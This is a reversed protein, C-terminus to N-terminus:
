QPKAHRSASLPDRPPFVKFPRWWGQEPQHSILALLDGEPSSACARLILHDGGDQSQGLAPDTTAELPLSLPRGSLVDQEMAPTLSVRPWHRVPFDLPYLVARWGDKQFAQQLGELSVSDELLFGGSRTRVLGALHAGCGVTQGLDHALSRIYTGRGCEVVLTAKPPEWTLVQIREIHIPRPAPEVAVGQRALAYLRKGRYKLASFRPPQQLFAGVFRACAAEVDGRSLGAPDRQEVVVGWADYTDTVAGFEVEARYVKPEPIFELLRTGHGLGIPLVGTAGPDLTGGHGVRKEHSWRRLRQVVDHSTLGPPKGVNLFGDM